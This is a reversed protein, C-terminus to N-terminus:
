DCECNKVEEATAEVTPLSKIKDENAPPPGTDELNALMQSIINDLGQPGWAYDNPAGHLGSSCTRSLCPPPPPPVVVVSHYM